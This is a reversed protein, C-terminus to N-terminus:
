GSTEASLSDSSSNDLHILTQDEKFELSENHKQISNYMKEYQPDITLFTIVTGEVSVILIYKMYFYLMCFLNKKRVSKYVQRLYLIFPSFEDNCRPIDSMTMVGKSAKKMFEARKKKTNLGARQKMILEAHKSLVIPYKLKPFYVRRKTTM